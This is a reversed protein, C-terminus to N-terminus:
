HGLSSRSRNGTSCSSNAGTHSDMPIDKRRGRGGKKRRSILSCCHLHPAWYPTCVGVSTAAVSVVGLTVTVMGDEGAAVPLSSAAWSSVLKSSMRSSIESMASSLKDSPSTSSWSVGGVAGVEGTSSFFGLISSRSSLALRLFRLDVPATGLGNAEFGGDGISNPEAVADGVVGCAKGFAKSSKSRSRRVLSPRALSAKLLKNLPPLTLLLASPKVLHLRFRDIAPVHYYLKTDLLIREWPRANPITFMNFSRRAFM